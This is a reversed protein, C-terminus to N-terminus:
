KRRRRKFNWLVFLPLLYNLIVWGGRTASVSVYVKSASTDIYLDGIKDPIQYNSTDGAASQITPFITTADDRMDVPTYFLLSDTGELGYVTTGSVTLYDPQYTTSSILTGSTPLTIGTIGTTTATIVHGGSLTLTGANRTFGTVLSSTGTVNGTLNGSFTGTVTGSFTPSASFVLNGTGTAGTATVGEITPHGTFTPSTFMTAKSENTVNGLGVDAATLSLATKFLAATLWSPTNDANVRLFRIADPNPSTFIGQGVTTGGLSTRGTAAVLNTAGGDWRLRAVYSSDWQVSNNVISTGWSTGTSLPIGALPYIMAGGGGAPVGWAPAGGIM